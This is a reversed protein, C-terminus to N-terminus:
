RLSQLKQEIAGTIEAKMNTFLGHHNGEFETMTVEVGNEKLLGVTEWGGRVSIVDDKTGHFAFVPAGPQFPEAGLLEPKMKGSVAFVYAYDEGFKAAQYYAMMAGVSFGLLVPKQKTPYKLTLLRIAENLAPGYQAFGAANWPWASGMGRSLPGELLVIRAPTNLQDLATAYFNGPSDGNGHLAILLPLRDSRSAEGTYKVIYNFKIDSNPVQISPHTFWWAAVAIVLLILILKKM